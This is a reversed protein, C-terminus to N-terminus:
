WEYREMETFRVEYDEPYFVSLFDKVQETKCEPNSDWDVQTGKMSYVDIHVKKDLNFVWIGYEDFSLQIEPCKDEIYTEVQSYSIWDAM